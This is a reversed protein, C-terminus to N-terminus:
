RSYQLEPDLLYSEVTHAADTLFGDRDEVPESEMKLAGDEMSFTYHKLQRANDMEPYDGRIHM